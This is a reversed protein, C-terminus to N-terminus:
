GNEKKSRSCVFMRRKLWADVAKRYNEQTEPIECHGAMYLHHIPPLDWESNMEECHYLAVSHGHEFGIFCRRHWARNPSKRHYWKVVKKCAPCIFINNM